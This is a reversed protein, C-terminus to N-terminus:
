LLFLLLSFIIPIAIENGVNLLHHQNKLLFELYMKNDRGIPKSMELYHKIKLNMAINKINLIGKIVRLKQKRNCGGPLFNLNLIKKKKYIRSRRTSWNHNHLVTASERLHPKNIKRAKSTYRVRTEPHFIVNWHHNM